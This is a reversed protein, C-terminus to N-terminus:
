RFNARLANASHRIDQINLTYGDLYSSFDFNALASNLLRVHYLNAKFEGNPKNITGGISAEINLDGTFEVQKFLTNIIPLSWLHNNSQSFLDRGSGGVRETAFTHFKIDLESEESVGLYKLFSSSLLGEKKLINLNLRGILNGLQFTAKELSISQDGSAFIGELNSLYTENELKFNSINLELTSRAKLIEKTEEIFGDLYKIGFSVPKETYYHQVWSSITSSTLNQITLNWKFNMNKISGCLAILASSPHIKKNNSRLNM